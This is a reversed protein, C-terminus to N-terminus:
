RIGEELFSVMARGGWRRPHVTRGADVVQVMSCAIRGADTVLSCLTEIDCILMLGVIEFVFVVYLM